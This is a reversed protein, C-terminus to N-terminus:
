EDLMQMANDLSRRMRNFSHGLSALEDNGKPEFEPADAKGLSVDEAIRAMSVAPKIVFIHLLLNLLLLAVLFIAGTALLFAQFAQDARRLAINMPVSVIQAGVVENLNWGFGNANGYKALMAPPAHEVTGHCDLCAGSKVQIPRALYFSKGTAAERTGTLEKATTDNRFHNVVSTEWDTARSMPNTPNLTAEKYSYEPYTKRLGQINTTAAYAPVSQPLFEEHLKEALLPKIESVTYNRISLASEMMIGATHLIEEQAQNQLLDNIVYASIGFGAAFTTGIILNFKLRLSM